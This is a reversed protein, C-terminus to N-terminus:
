ESIIENRKTVDIAKISLDKIHRSIRKAYIKKKGNERLNHAEFSLKTKILSTPSSSLFPISLPCARNM